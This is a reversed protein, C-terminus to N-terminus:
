RQCPIGIYKPTGGIKKICLAFKNFTNCRHGAGVFGFWFKMYLTENGFYVAIDPPLFEHFDHRPHAVGRADGTRGISKKLGEIKLTKQTMRILLRMIDNKIKAVLAIQPESVFCFFRLLQQVHAEVVCEAWIKLSDAFFDGVVTPSKKKGGRKELPFAPPHHHYHKFILM